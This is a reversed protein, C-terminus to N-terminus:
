RIGRRLELAECVDNLDPFARGDLDSMTWAVRLVRNHGRASILGRDLDKALPAAAERALRFRADRLTRAPVGANTANWREAAAARATAVRAAVAVSSEGAEEGLVAAPRAPTLAVQLDIRDLLPGSLRSLYRRRAVPSCECHSDGGPRACPCPNAALVLQVRAPYVTEARARSIRVVGEELPQRLAELAGPSFEPAEDMFLVGQHARSLAGPRGIGSGGGVLAAVSATHHPAQFPPRRILPSDAPLTGSLSHVATVELAAEDSLAPLLTPLRQALMTKGAGPPGFLALNHGGAAALEVARRGRDQGLVDALDPGDPPAPLTVGPPDLLLGDCRLFGILRLLTDTAQVVIGPVLAAEAANAVPVVAYRLGERMAALVAPLVGRVPRVAGDLGLEGILVAERLPEAPIVGAAALLSAAIALDFSSGHKPLHAPLLNVTLRRQPWAEGSNVVAARVRDRAQSLAADPLGTLVLSPLGKAVDSEVVVVQGVMGVLAVARVQAYSM